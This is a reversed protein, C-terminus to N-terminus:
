QSLRIFAWGKCKKRPSGPEIQQRLEFATDIARLRVVGRSVWVPEVTADVDINLFFGEEENILRDGANRSFRRGDRRKRSIDNLAFRRFRHKGIIRSALPFDSITGRTRRGDNWAVELQRGIIEGRRKLFGEWGMVEHM